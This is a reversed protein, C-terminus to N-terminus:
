TIDCKMDKEREANRPSYVQSPKSISVKSTITYELWRLSVLKSYHLEADGLTSKLRTQASQHTATESTSQKFM